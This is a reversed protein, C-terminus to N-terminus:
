EPVAICGRKRENTLWTLSLFNRLRPRRHPRVRRRRDLVDRHQVFPHPRRIPTGARQGSPTGRKRCGGDQRRGPKRKGAARDRALDFVFRAPFSAAVKRRQLIPIQFALIDDRVPNVREKVREHRAVLVRMFPGIVRIALIALLGHDQIGGLIKINGSNPFELSRNHLM